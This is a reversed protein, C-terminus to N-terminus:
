KDEIIKEMKASKTKTGPSQITEIIDDLLKEIKEFHKFVDDDIHIIHYKKDIYEFELAKYHHVIFGITKLNDNCYIWTCMSIGHTISNVNISGDKLEGATINCSKPRSYYSVRMSGSYGTSWREANLFCTDDLKFNRFAADFIAKANILKPMLTSIIQETSMKLM